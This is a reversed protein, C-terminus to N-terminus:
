QLYIVFQLRKGIGNWRILRAHLRLSRGFGDVDGGEALQTGCDGVVHVDRPRHLDPSAVGDGDIVGVLHGRLVQHLRQVCAADSLRIVGAGEDLLLEVVGVVVDHRRSGLHGEGARQALHAHGVGAAGAGAVVQLAEVSVEEDM